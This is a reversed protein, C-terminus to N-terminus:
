LDYKITSINLGYAEIKKYLATRHIGLKKAAATRNGGSERLAKRIGEIEARAVINKLLLTEEENETKEVTERLLYEPLHEPEIEDKNTVNVARELANRLERINGPWDHDELIRLVEPTIKKTTTNLDKALNELIYRALIPLDGMRDRLPPIEIRMVNLRYYLDQRFLGKEITEELKENTAAIVRVDLEIPNTGGVREFEHSELVRLLKAQMELPMAGIEDLLITGGNALEFKGLKGERKAGTFSGGEYGFLEAELLEKPIAACNITVFGGYKRLSANHIAHAFIEKGTGSEGQILVTSNSKAARRAIEKLYIMYKDKTIIHDFSYQAEYFRKIEGKYKHVTDVLVEFKQALAKLEKVDKFLVTGAAGIIKGDKVIPIRSAIMDHGQIKQIQGLEKEGTKAVIHLRTNEIVDQVFKHLVDEEKIGLLKEYNWKVIRGDQDVLVMGHYANDFLEEIMEISERLKKLQCDSDKQLTIDRFVLMKGVLKEEELLPISRYIFYRGNMTLEKERRHDMHRPKNELLANKFIQKYKKNLVAKRDMGMIEIFSDNCFIIEEHQDLLVIGNFIQNLVVALLELKEKLNM